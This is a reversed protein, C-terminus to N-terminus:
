TRFMKRLKHFISPEEPPIEPSKKLDVIMERAAREGEEIYARVKDPNFFDNWAYFESPIHPTIVYAADDITANALNHRLISISNKPIQALPFFKKRPPEVVYKDLNVAIVKHAGLSQAVDVPIPDSLGGDALLMQGYHVPRLLAPIAISARIAHALDGSDIVVKNGTYFDTAVAAFPILLSDFTIGRFLENLFTEIKKGKLFGGKVTPDLFQFLKQRSIDLVIQELRAASRYACYHAGLLAGISSGAICSIPIDYQELVKLVGIHALGRASGSGLALGYTDSM